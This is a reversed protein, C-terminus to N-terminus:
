SVIQALPSTKAAINPVTEHRFVVIFNHFYYILLIFPNCFCINQCKSFNARYDNKM